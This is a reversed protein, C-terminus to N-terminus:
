VVGRDTVPLSETRDVGEYPPPEHAPCAGLVRAFGPQGHLFEATAEAVLPPSEGAVPDHEGRPGSIQVPVQERDPLDEVATSPDPTKPIEGAAQVQARLVRVDGALTSVASGQKDAEDALDSYWSWGIAAAGSLAMLWCLVAISRWRRALAREACTV